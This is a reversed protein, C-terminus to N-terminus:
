LERGEEVALTEDGRRCTESIGMSSSGSTCRHSQM